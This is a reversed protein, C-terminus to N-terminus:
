FARQLRHARPEPRCATCVMTRGLLSGEESLVRAVRLAQRGCRECPLPDPGRTSAPSGCRSSSRAPRPSSGSGAGARGVAGELARVGASGFYTVESLNLVLCAPLDQWLARQLLRVSDTDVDGAASVIVLDHRWPIRRVALAKEAYHPTSERPTSSHASNSFLSSM